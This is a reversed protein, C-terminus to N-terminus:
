SSSETSEFHFQLQGLIQIKFPFILTPILSYLTIDHLQNANKNHNHGRTHAAKL